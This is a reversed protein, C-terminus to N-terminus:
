TPRVAVHQPSRHGFHDLALVPHESTKARIGAFQGLSPDLRDEFLLVLLGAVFGGLWLQLGDLEARLAKMRMEPPPPADAGPAVSEMTAKAAVVAPHAKLAQVYHDAFHALSAAQRLEVPRGEVQQFSPRATMRELWAVFRPRKQALAEYMDPSM